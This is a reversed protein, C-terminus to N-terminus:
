AADCVADAISNIAVSIVMAHDKQGDTQRDTVSTRQALATQCLSINNPLSVQTVGFLNLVTTHM